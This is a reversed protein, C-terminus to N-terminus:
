QLGIDILDSFDVVPDTFGAFLLDLFSLDSLDFSVFAFGALFPPFFASFALGPLGLLPFGGFTTASKGKDEIM